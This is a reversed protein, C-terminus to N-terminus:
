TKRTERERNEWRDRLYLEVKVQKDENKKRQSFFVQSQTKEDRAYHPYLHDSPIILISQKSWQPWKRCVVVCPSAHFLCCFMIQKRKDKLNFISKILFSKFLFKKNVLKSSNRIQIFIIRFEVSFTSNFNQIQDYKPINWASFKIKVSYLTGSSTL